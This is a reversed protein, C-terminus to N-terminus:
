MWARVPRLLHQARGFNIAIRPQHERLIVHNPRITPRPRVCDCPELIAYRYEREIRLAEDKQGFLKVVRLPTAPDLDDAAAHFRAFIKERGGSALQTFLDADHCRSPHRQSDDIRERRLRDRGIESNRASPQREDFRGGIACFRDTTQSDREGFRDLHDHLSIM